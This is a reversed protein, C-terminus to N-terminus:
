GVQLADIDEEEVADQYSSQSSSSSVTDLDWVGGQGHVVPSLFPQLPPTPVSYSSLCLDLQIETRSLLIDKQDSLLLICSILVKQAEPHSLYAFIM